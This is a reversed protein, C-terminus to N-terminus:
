LDTFTYTQDKEKEQSPAIASNTSCQNRTCSIMHQFGHDLWVLPKYFKYKDSGLWTSLMIIIPCPRAPETDPYHSQTPYWDWPLSPRIKWHSLMIFDGYTHVTVHPYRDQYSPLHQQSTFCCVLLRRMKDWVDYWQWSIISNSNCHCLVFCVVVTCYDLGYLEIDKM